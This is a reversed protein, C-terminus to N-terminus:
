FSKIYVLLSFTSLMVPLRYSVHLIWKDCKRDKGEVVSKGRVKNVELKQTRLNDFGEIPHLFAFILFNPPCFKRIGNKLRSESSVSKCYCGRRLPFKILDTSFDDYYFLKPSM